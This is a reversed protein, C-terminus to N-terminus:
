EYRLAELVDVRGARWAPWAAAVLAVLVTLAGSGVLSSWDARYPNHNGILVPLVQLMTWLTSPGLVAASVLAAGGVAAAEALVIRQLEAPTTGVASLLGHERRRQLGILLLTSLVAVFAVFQLAQQMVRFALMQTEISSVIETVLQDTTLVHLQPDIDLRRRGVEAALQAESVGEDPVLVVFAPPQPGYLEVLRDYSMMVNFGGFDGDSLVGQVPVDVLGTPTALEVTDGPRAGSRRAMSPGILVEGAVMGAREGSGLVVDIPMSELEAGELATVSVLSGIDHGFSVFAGRRVEAVGPVEALMTLADPGLLADGGSNVGITSVSVGDGGDAFSRAVGERASSVFGDVAFGVIVPSAVAVVMVGTRRPDRVLNALALLATAGRGSGFRRHLAGLLLPASSGALFLTGVAFAVFGLPGISAQWPEIGGGLQSGWSAVAGLASILGWVVVSRVLRVPRADVVAGRGSLEAAVDLRTARRAPGLASGAGVLTGLVLGLVLVSPSVHRELPIGAVSRTFGSISGVIPGAVAIGGAVGVAGGVLGLLGAEAMASALVSRPPAGLAGMIALQRRREELTLAITNRVLVAGTGLGFMGLLSFLPLFTVLVIQTEPPPDTAKLVANQPGIAAEIRAQLAGLDEGDEPLVYAVDVLGDQMFRHAAGELGFVVVRGNNLVDLEPLATVAGLPMRGLDTRLSGDPGVEEALAQGIVLPQDGAAALLAPDCGIPGLLQEVRCDVGLALVSIEEYGTVVPRGGDDREFVEVRDARTVAQVMPVLAEVGDVAEAAAVAELTLGGRSTAGVIRLPAPGALTRGFETVSRDVSGSVVVIAVALTVGAAVAVIALVARLPQQRVRRVALLRFVRM